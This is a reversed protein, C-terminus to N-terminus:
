TRTRHMRRALSAGSETVVVVRSVDSPDWGDGGADDEVVTMEIGRRRKEVLTEFEGLTMEIDERRELPTSASSPDDDRRARPLARTV